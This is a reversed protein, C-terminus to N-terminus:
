LLEGLWELDSFGTGASSCLPRASLLSGRLRREVATFKHTAMHLPWLLM